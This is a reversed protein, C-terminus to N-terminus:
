VPLLTRVVDLCPNKMREHLRKAALYGIRELNFPIVYCRSETNYFDQPAGLIISPKDKIFEIDRLQSYSRDALYVAADIKKEEVVTELEYISSEDLSGNTSIYKHVKIKSGALFDDLGRFREIYSPQIYDEDEFKLQVVLLNKYKGKEAIEAVRIGAHYNDMCVSDVPTRHLNADVAVVPINKKLLEPVHKELNAGGVIIGDVLESIDAGQARLNEGSQILLSYGQENAFQEIGHYLRASAGSKDIFHGKISSFYIFLLRKQKPKKDISKDPMKKILTGRRGARTLIGTDILDDVASRVTVRSVNYIECLEREPPIRGSIPYEGSLIKFRINKKVKEKKLLKGQM